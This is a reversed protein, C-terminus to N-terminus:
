LVPPGDSDPDDIPLPCVTGTEWFLTHIWYRATYRLPEPNKIAVQDTGFLIREKYQGFFDRAAAPQKGLERVIWKTASTDLYLNPYRDLLEALHDLHEPDGGMHAALIPIGPHAALRNELQPYQDAKTGYLATDTYVREFWVDPDAVHTLVGLGQAEIEQFIPDLLPDDMRKGTRAVFRPAFWMKIIRAGKAAAQRVLQVNREVFREPDSLHEFEL